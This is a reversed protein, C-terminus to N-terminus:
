SANKRGLSGKETNASQSHNDTSSDLVSEITNRNEEIHNSNPKYICPMLASLGGWKFVKIIEQKEVDSILHPIANWIANFSGDEAEQKEEIKEEPLDLAKLVDEKISTPLSYINFEYAVGKVGTVQRFEWGEIKAKRAISSPNTPLGAIGALEKATVWENCTM